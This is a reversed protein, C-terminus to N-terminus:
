VAKQRIEAIIAKVQDRASDIGSSTDVIFDARKRKEADPVQRSLIAEFKEVTMGPRALVRARQDEATTSVVIIVDVRGEGKTEFLLPIDLLVLDAGSAEASKLFEQEKAHVLPHVILELSKMADPKGIVQKGLLERDVKGNRTTGPFAEEILPSAEGEYLAHVTADADYVPIGEDRFMNATTSKGMGISGTLGARIM